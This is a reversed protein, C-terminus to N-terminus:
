ITGSNLLASDWSGEITVEKTIHLKNAEEGEKNRKRVGKGSSRPDGGLYM